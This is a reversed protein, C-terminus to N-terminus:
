QSGEVCLTEERPAAGRQSGRMGACQARAKGQGLERTHASGGGACEYSGANHFSSRYYICGRSSELPGHIELLTTLVLLKETRCRRREAVLRPHPLPYLICM